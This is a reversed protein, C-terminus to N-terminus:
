VCLAKIKEKLKNELYYKGFEIDVKHDSIFKKMVELNLTYEDTKKILDFNAKKDLLKEFMQVIESIAYRHTNAIDITSCGAGYELYSTVLKVVDNIEIVYRYANDYVSFHKNDEIAGYIYNILTGHPILKGFLQPIRFIYYKNSLQRVCDEMKAKHLYYENKPYDNSSLACSSFYVIKKDTNNKLTALLLDKERKFQFPDICNSNSVGSAFIVVKNDNNYSFFAKALQGNGVVM